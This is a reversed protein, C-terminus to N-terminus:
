PVNADTIVLIKFLVSPPINVFDHIVLIVICFIMNEMKGGAMEWIYHFVIEDKSNLYNYSSKSTRFCLLDLKILKLKSFM